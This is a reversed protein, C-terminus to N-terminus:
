SLVQRQPINRRGALAPAERLRVPEAGGPPRQEVPLAIPCNNKRQEGTGPLDGTVICQRPQAPGGV